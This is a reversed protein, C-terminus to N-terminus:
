ELAKFIYDEIYDIEFEKLIQLYEERFTLQHNYHHEKQKKIYEIISPIDSKRYSFAGYGDQWQFKGKVLNHENIWKTSQSKVDAILAPLAESPRYGILIHIHDPMGNIQLLKHKKNQIIGTIYKYLEDEWDISILSARYKVAFVLQLHIQTYTNAM